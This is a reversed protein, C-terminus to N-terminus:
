LDCKIIREIMKGRTDGGSHHYETGSRDYERGSHYYTVRVPLQGEPAALNFTLM